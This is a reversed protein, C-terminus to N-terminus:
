RVSESHKAPSLKTLRTGVAYVAAGVAIGIIVDSRVALISRSGGVSSRSGSSWWPQSLQRRRGIRSWNKRVHNRRKGRRRRGDNDSRSECRTAGGGVGRTAKIDRRHPPGRPQLRSRRVVRASRDRALTLAVAVPPEWWSAAGMAIRNPMALPATVPFYSVARAWTTDPSGIAAFAVFYAAALVISVPGAVSQADETRSALSGLAGFVTAYLAYGLVFWVVIWALTPAACPPSTSPIPSRRRSSRSSRRSRSRRSASCGSVPSRGALLNRAPM